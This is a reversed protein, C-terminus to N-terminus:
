KVNACAGCADMVAILRLNRLASSEIRRVMTPTLALWLAVEDIELKKSGIGFRLRLLQEEAPRLQQLVAEAEEAITM